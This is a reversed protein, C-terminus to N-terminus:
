FPLDDDGESGSDFPSESTPLPAANSPVVNEGAPAGAAGKDIKWANLNVFYKGNYENGRLNFHVTIDENVAFNSLMDCKEKYVEFKIDQPYQEATTVVIERKEFGSGFTQKDFIVKVKGALEM